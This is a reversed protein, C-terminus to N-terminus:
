NDYICRSYQYLETADLQDTGPHQNHRHYQDLLSQSLSVDIDTAQAMRIIYDQGYLLEAMQRYLRPREIPVEGPEAIRWGRIGIQKFLYLYRERTIIGLDKARRVLMQISVRWRRKLRAAATLNLSESLTERMAQEPLLFEAAFEDAERELEIVYRQMDRHMVLHGLEHAASFRLRDGAAVSSLAIIPREHDIHAWTSFADIKELALPLGFVITGHQELLNIIHAVPQIPGVGLALRTSRASHVPDESPDPLRMPPLNLKLSMQIMQEVLLALFQHAQDRESSRVSSRSRYVLSGPSIPTTPEREFFGPKVGTEHAISEIIATSPFARGTEFHAIASQNVGVAVALQSQTLRKLERAQKIRGRYIM